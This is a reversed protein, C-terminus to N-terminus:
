NAKFGFLRTQQFIKQAQKYLVLYKHWRVGKQPRQQDQNVFVRHNHFLLVFLFLQWSQLPNQICQHM